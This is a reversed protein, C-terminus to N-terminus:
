TNEIPIRKFITIKQTIKFPTLQCNEMNMKKKCTIFCITFSNLFTKFRNCYFVLIYTSKSNKNEISSRKRTYGNFDEFVQWCFILLSTSVPCTFVTIHLYQLQKRGCKLVVAFSIRFGQFDIM